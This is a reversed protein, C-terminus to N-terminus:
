SRKADDRCPELGGSASMVSVPEGVLKRVLFRALSRRPSDLGGSARSVAASRADCGDLTGGRRDVPVDVDRTGGDPSVDRIQHDLLQSEIVQRVDGRDNERIRGLQWGAGDFVAGVVRPGFRQTAAVSSRIAEALDDRAIQAPASTTSWRVRSSAYEAWRPWWSSRRRSFSALDALAARWKATSM